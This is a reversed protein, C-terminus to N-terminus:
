YAHPISDLTTFVWYGDKRLIKNNVISIFCAFCHLVSGSFHEMLTIIIIIVVVFLLLFLMLLLVLVKFIVALIVYHSLSRPFSEYEQGVTVYELTQPHNVWSWWAFKKNTLYTHHLLWGQEARSWLPLDWHGFCGNVRWWHFKVINITNSAKLPWYGLGVYDVEFLPLNQLICLSSLIELSDLSQSMTQFSASIYYLKSLVYTDVIGPEIRM